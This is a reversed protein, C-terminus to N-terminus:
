TGFCQQKTKVLTWEGVFLLYIFSECYAFQFCSYTALGPLPNDRRSPKDRTRQLLVQCLVPVSASFICRKWRNCYVCTLGNKLCEYKVPYRKVYHFRPSQQQSIQGILSHKRSGLTFAPFTLSRSSFNPSFQIQKAQLLITLGLDRIHITCSYHINNGQITISPPNGKAGRSQKKIEKKPDLWQQGQNHSNGEVFRLGFYDREM